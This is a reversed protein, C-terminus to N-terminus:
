HESLQPLSLKWKLAALRMTLTIAMALLMSLTAELQLFSFLAFSLAGALSATAYIEKRFILPVQDSLLDRIIGGAVGTMVGMIVAVLPTVGALQAKEMGMVTFLALGCADALTLVRYPWGKNLPWLMTLVASIMIVYIYTNDQIWFIPYDLLLDRLTGGGVGTVSALIIAGFLDMKLQRAALAGSMAFVAVGLLDFLYILQDQSFMVLLRSKFFLTVKDSPETATLHSPGNLALSSFLHPGASPGTLLAVKARSANGSLAM